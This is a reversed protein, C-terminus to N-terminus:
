HCTGTNSVFGAIEGTPTPTKFYWEPSAFYAVSDGFWFPGYELDLLAKASYLLKGEKNYLKATGLVENRRIFKHSVISEYRVIYYEHNPSYCRFEGAKYGGGLEYKVIDVEFIVIWAALLM